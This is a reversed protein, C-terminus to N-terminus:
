VLLIFESESNLYGEEIEIFLFNEFMLKLLGNVVYVVIEM